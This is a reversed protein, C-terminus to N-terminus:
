CWVVSSMYRRHRITGLWRIGPGSADVTLAKALVPGPTLLKPAWGYEGTGGPASRACVPRRTRVSCSRATTQAEHLQKSQGFTMKGQGWGQHRASGISASKGPCWGPKWGVPWQLQFRLFDDGKTRFRRKLSAVQGNKHRRRALVEARVFLFRAVFLRRPAGNPRPRRRLGRARKRGAPVGWIRHARFSSAKTKDRPVAALGGHSSLFPSYTPRTGDGDREWTAAPTAPCARPRPRRYPRVRRRPAPFPGPRQIRHM